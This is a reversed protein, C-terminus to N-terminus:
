SYTLHSPLPYIKVHGGELISVFLIKVRIRKQSDSSPSQDFYLLEEYSVSSTLGTFDNKNKHTINGM